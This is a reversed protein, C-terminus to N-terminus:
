EFGEWGCKSDMAGFAVKEVVACREKGGKEFEL